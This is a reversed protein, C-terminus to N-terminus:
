PSPGSLTRKRNVSARLIKLLNAHVSPSTWTLNVDHVRRAVLVDPLVAMRVGLDGARAFWDVDDTPALEPNLLGVTDFVTRRAILTEMMRGEHSGELLERRFSPPVACGPELFFRVRSLTYQVEPHRSMYGVHAALKGPEWLDDHSLFAIFAGAASGIGLNYADATGTGSQHIVTVNAYARAVDVTRDTSHGDVVLIEVPTYDQALVSEIAQALFREGNKVIIITSVLPANPQVVAPSKPDGDFSTEARPM